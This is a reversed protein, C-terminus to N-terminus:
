VIRNSKTLRMNRPIPPGPCKQDTRNCSHAFVSQWAEYLVVHGVMEISDLKKFFSVPCKMCSTDFSVIPRHNFQAHRPCRRPKFVIIGANKMRFRPSRPFRIKMARGNHASSSHCASLRRSFAIKKLISPHNTITHLRKPDRKQLSQASCSMSNDNVSQLAQHPYILALPRSVIGLSFDGAPCKTQSLPNDVSGPRTTRPQFNPIM